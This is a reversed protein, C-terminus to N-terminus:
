SREVSMISLISSTLSVSIIANRSTTNTININRPLIRSVIIGVTASGKEIRRVKMNMYAKPKETFLRDSIPSVIAIPNRTSSAITNRSFVTRLISSKPSDGAAAVKLDARSIEKVIRLMVSDSAATNIGSTNILPMVPLTNMSNETVIMVATRIDPKTLKDSVGM